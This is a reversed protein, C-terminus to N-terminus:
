STIYGANEIGMKLLSKYFGGKGRSAIELDAYYYEIPKGGFEDRYRFAFKLIPTDPPANTVARKNIQIAFGRHNKLATEVNRAMIKEETTFDGKLCYEITDRVNMNKAKEGHIARMISDKESAGITRLIVWLPYTDIYEMLKKWERHQIMYKYTSPYPKPSLYKMAM